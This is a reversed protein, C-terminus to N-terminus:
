CSWEGNGVSANYLDRVAEETLCTQRPWWDGGDPDRLWWEGEFTVRAELGASEDIASNCIRRERRAAARHEPLIAVARAQSYGGARRVGAAYKAASAEAAEESRHFSYIFSYNATEPVIVAYM